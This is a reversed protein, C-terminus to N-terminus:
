PSLKLVKGWSLAQPHLRGYSLRISCRGELCPTAPELGAPRAMELNGCSVGDLLKFPLATKPTRLGSKRCYAVREAFALRLVTRKLTLQGSDWLKCPNRLFEMALEFLEEFPRAPKGMNDIAEAVILKRQELEAIRTEYARIVSTNTAEVIRDLLGAIQRDNQAAERALEQRRAHAQATRQAWANDFM